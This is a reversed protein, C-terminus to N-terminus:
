DASIALTSSLIYDIQTSSVEAFDKWEVGSVTPLTGAKSAESFVDGIAIEDTTVGGPGKFSMSGELHTAWTYPVTLTEQNFLLKIEYIKGAPITFIATLGSSKTTTQDEGTSDTWNFTGTASLTTEGGVGAFEYSFAQTVGVSFGKSEEHETSYGDSYTYSLSPELTLTPELGAKNNGIDNQSQADVLPNTYVEHKTDFVPAQDSSDTLEDLVPTFDSPISAAKMFGTGIGNVVDLNLISIAM